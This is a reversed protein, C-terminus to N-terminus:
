CNEVSAEELMRLPRACHLHWHLHSTMDHYVSPRASLKWFSMNCSVHQLTEATEATEDASGQM